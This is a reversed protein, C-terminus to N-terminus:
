DGEVISAVRRWAYKDVDNVRLLAITLDCELIVWHSASQTEQSKDVNRREVVILLEERILHRLLERIQRRMRMQQIKLFGESLDSFSICEEEFCVARLM